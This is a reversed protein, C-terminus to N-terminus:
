HIFAFASTQLELMHEESTEAPLGLMTPSPCDNDFARITVTLHDGCKVGEMVCSNSVSSCNYSSNKYNGVAEVTYYLAGEANDWKSLLSDVRCDTATQLNQPICPAPFLPFLSNCLHVLINENIFSFSFVVSICNYFPNMVNM